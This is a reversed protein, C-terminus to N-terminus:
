CKPVSVSIAGLTCASDIAIERLRSGWRKAMEPIAFALASLGEPEDLEIKEYAYPGLGGAEQGKELLKEASLM